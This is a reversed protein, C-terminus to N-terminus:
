YLIVSCLDLRKKALLSRMQCGKPPTMYVIELTIFHADFLFERKFIACVTIKSPTFLLVWENFCINCPKYRANLSRPYGWQLQASWLPVCFHLALCLLLLIIHLGVSSTNCTLRGHLSM